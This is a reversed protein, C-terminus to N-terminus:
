RTTLPYRSPPRRARFDSASESASPTEPIQLKNHDLWKSNSALTPIPRHIVRWGVWEKRKFRLGKSPCTVSSGSFPGIKNTEDVREHIESLEDALGESSM